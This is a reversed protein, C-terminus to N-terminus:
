SKNISWLLIGDKNVNRKIFKENMFKECDFCEFITKIKNFIKHLESRHKEVDIKDPIGKTKPTTNAKTKTTTATDKTTPTTTTDKNKTKTKTTTDKNKTKTTTDKNKTKTSPTTDKNKSKTTPTTDKNKTTTITNELMVKIKKRTQTIIKDLKDDILHLTDNDMESAKHIIENIM